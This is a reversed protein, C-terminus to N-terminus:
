GSSCLAKVDEEGSRSQGGVRKTNCCRIRKKLRHLLQRQQYQKVVVQSDELM